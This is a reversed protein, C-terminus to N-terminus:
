FGEVGNAQLVQVALAACQVVRPVHQFDQAIELVHTALAISKEQNPVAELYFISLNVLTMAVNPLYTRPNEAALTRRIQLAEEYSSQARDFDHQASQLVAVNNLTMAVDPLYTRPNEAALTRYMQLAEEYSSQARDFDHQEQQLVALNNLTTAVNPLYTRPNEAALTRRIQLAEEYSAQARDFDHQDSQLGAVNNLTMAVNPLYTRPNEAALTRYMQLAEEYSSQARDFDHQDSQLLGLNNLTGAVNPLYTRPNEEALTRRVNLSEQYLPKAPDFCNHNQLFLAYEFLTTPTRAANLATEFYCCAREFWDPQGYTLTQLRAKIVFEDAIQIKGKAIEAKEQDLQQERENLRELDQGMEEANLIADAERFEGQEFHAKAQALRKTDIDIKSFTEYLRFVNEKFADLQQELEALETGAKLAKDTKSTAQYAEILEQKEEIRKTLDQYDLSQYVFQATGINEINYTKDGM